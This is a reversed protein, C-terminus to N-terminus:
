KEVRELLKQLEENGHIEELRALAEEWTYARYSHRQGKDLEDVIENIDKRIRESEEDIRFQIYEEKTADTMIFHDVITSWIALKGNPQKM